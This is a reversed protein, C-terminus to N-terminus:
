REPPAFPILLEGQSFHDAGDTEPSFGLREGSERNYLGVRFLYSGEPLGLPPAIRRRDIYLAGPEWDTTPKVGALLPGDFQAILEGASDYLHVYTIWDAEVRARAEWYTRLALEGHDSLLDYGQLRVGDETEAAAEVAPRTSQFLGARIPTVTIDQLTVLGESSGPVALREGSERVMGAVLTYDAPPIDAPVKLLMTEVFYKGPAWALTSPRVLGRNEVAWSRQSSPMYLHVFSHLVEDLAERTQWYLRVTITDGPKPDRGSLLEWGLLTLQQSDADGVSIPEGQTSFALQGPPSNYFFPFANLASFLCRASVFCFIVGVLPWQGVERRGSRLKMESKGIMKGPRSQLRWGQRWGLYLAGALSVLLGLLSLREGRRQWDTGEWGILLPQDPDRLVTAQAWGARGASLDARDGAGWAPHYHLRLLAPQPRGSLNAVAEHPTNWRLRAAEPEPKRGQVVDMDVNRPQFMTVGTSRGPTEGPDIRDLQVISTHPALSPFLYPFPFLLAAAVVLSSPLWRLREQWVDIGAAAAPLVGVVAAPLLRLPFEIASLAPLDRWLNASSPVTLTLAALTFAVGCICWAPHGRNRPRLLVSALGVAAALWQAPGFTNLPSSLPNNARADWIFPQASLLTAWGIFDFSDVSRGQMADHVHVHRLDGLAPMWYAASVLAALVAAAACRGIGSWSRYGATLLATYLFLTAAGIMAQQQHSLVMFALSFVAALLYRIRMQMYLATVAWLCFPLVLIGLLQPYDGSSLFTRVYIHPMGLYLAAGALAATESFTIRLWAYVSWGALLFAAMVVLTLSRDLPIGTWHVAGVLWYLGPSYYHFTPEGLGFNSSPFWRPWFVGQSFSRQMAASRHLHFHADVTDPIGAQLWLPSTLLVTLLSIFLFPLLKPPFQRTPARAMARDAESDHLVYLSALRSRRRRFILLGM